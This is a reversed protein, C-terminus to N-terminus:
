YKYKLTYLTDYIKEYGQVLIICICVPDTMCGPKFKTTRMLYKSAPM